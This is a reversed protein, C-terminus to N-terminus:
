SMPSAPCGPSHAVARLCFGTGTAARSKKFSLASLPFGRGAAPPPLRRGPCSVRVGMKGSGLPPKEPRLQQPKGPDDQSGQFRGEKQNGMSTKSRKSAVAGGRLSCPIFSLLIVSWFAFEVQSCPGEWADTKKKTKKRLGPRPALKHPALMAEGAAVVSKQGWPKSLIRGTGAQDAAAPFAAV